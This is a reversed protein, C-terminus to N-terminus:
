NLLVRPNQIDLYVIETGKYWYTYLHLYCISTCSDWHAAHLFVPWHISPRVAERRKLGKFGSNFGM